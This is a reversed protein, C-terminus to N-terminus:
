RAMVIRVRGVQDPNATGKAVRTETLREKLPRPPSAAVAQDRPVRMFFGASMQSNSLGSSLVATRPKGREHDRGAPTVPTM